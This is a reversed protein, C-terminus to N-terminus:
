PQLKQLGTTAAVSRASVLEVSKGAPTALWDNLGAISQASASVVGIAVGRSKARGALETLRQALRAPDNDLYADNIAAPIAQSRALTAAVTDAGARTDFFALGNNQALSMVPALAARDATFASGMINYLGTVGPAAAALATALHKSNQAATNKLLLTGPGPDIAPYRRPQMPIGLWVKHGGAMAQRMLGADSSTFGLDVLAPLRTIAAAATKPDSGLDMVLIAIRPATGVLAPVPDATPAPADRAPLPADNVAPPGPEAPMVPINAPGAVLSSEDPLPAAVAPETALPQTLIAGENIPAAEEPTPRLLTMFFGTLALFGILGAVGWPWLWGGSRPSGSSALEDARVYRTQEPTNFDDSM